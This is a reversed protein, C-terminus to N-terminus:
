TSSPDFIHTVLPSSEPTTNTNIRVSRSADGGCRPSVHKMASFSGPADSFGPNITGGM